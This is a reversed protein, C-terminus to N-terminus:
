VERVFFVNIGGMLGLPDMPNMGGGGMLSQSYLNAQAAAQNAQRQQEAQAQAQAHQQAQAQILKKLEGHQVDIRSTLSGLVSLRFLAVKNKM